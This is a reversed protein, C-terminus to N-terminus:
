GAKHILFGARPFHLNVEGVREDRRRLVVKHSDGRLFTGKVPVRGTDDPMVTVPDGPKLGAPDDAWAEEKGDPTAAAAIDLAEEGSLENREGHGFEAMRAAWATLHSFREALGAEAPCLNTLFWVNMYASIDALGPADGSPFARGEALAEDMWGAYAAWQVRMPAVGRRLLERDLPRGSFESRDKLFEEPILDCNAGFVLGATVAFWTRDAWMAAARHLGHGGPFLSPQPFRRELEGAILQTDCYIDGGIQMVPTKRYGGTLPMLDPKPMVPPIRVSKWSIGKLGFIVRIKESFPSVDYHHLTIGDAGSM